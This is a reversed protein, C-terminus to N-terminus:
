KGLVNLLIAAAGIASGIKYIKGIRSLRKVEKKLDESMNQYEVIRLDKQSIVSNRNELQLTLNAIVEELTVVKDNLTTLQERVAKSQALLRDYSVLDKVVLKAVPETLYVTSSETDSQSFSKSSLGIIAILLILNRKLKMKYLM